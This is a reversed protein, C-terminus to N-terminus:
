MTGYNKHEQTCPSCTPDAICLFSMPIEDEGVDAGGAGGLLHHTRQHLAEKSFLLYYMTTICPYTFTVM